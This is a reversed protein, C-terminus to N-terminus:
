TMIGSGGGVGTVISEADGQFHGLLSHNNDFFLVSLYAPTSQFEFSVTQDCLRQLHATYIDGFLAGSCPAFGWAWFCQATVATRKSQRHITQLQSIFVRSASITNRPAATITATRFCPRLSTFISSLPFIHM